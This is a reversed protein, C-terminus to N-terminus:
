LGKLSSKDSKRKNCKLLVSMMALLENLQHAANMFCTRELLKLAVVRMKAGALQYLRDPRNELM